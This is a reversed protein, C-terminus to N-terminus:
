CCSLHGAGMHPGATQVPIRTKKALDVPFVCFIRSIKKIKESKNPKQEPGSKAFIDAGVKGITKTDDLAGSVLMQGIEDYNEM